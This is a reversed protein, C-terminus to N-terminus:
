PASFSRIGRMAVDMAHRAATWTQDISDDQEISAVAGAQAAGVWAGVVAAATVRDLEDPYAKHLAEGLERQAEFIMHLGRAQLAPVTRVLKVRIPVLEVDVDADRSAILALIREQLRTMLEALGEDPRREAIVQLAVDFRRQRDAFVVDEKTPFYNFFTKTSVDAAAAIEAVTTEDYGKEQFLRLAADALTRRTRQKKRERLGVDESM